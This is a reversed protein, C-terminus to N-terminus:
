GLNEDLNGVERNRQLIQFHVNGAKDKRLLEWGQCWAPIVDTAQGELVFPLAQEAEVYVIGNESLLDICIPLIKELFGQNFPPDLFILDFKKKNKTLNAAVLLADGRQIQVSSAKLKAKVEEIQRFAPTFAEVLLVESAGRSAAEFGLAGSGAFLDLCRRSQWESDFLHNIWNFVTERVRDPTPRLGEATIVSLPTRKWQGGIIRVQHSAQSHPKKHHPKMSANPLHRFNM